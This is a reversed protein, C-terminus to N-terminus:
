RQQSGRAKGDVQYLGTARAVNLRGRKDIQEVVVHREHANHDGIILGTHHLGDALKGRGCMSGAGQKMGIGDLAVQMNREIDGLQANISHGNGRM